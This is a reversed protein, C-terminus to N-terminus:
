YWMQMSLGHDDLEPKNPVLCACNNKAREAVSLGILADFLDDIKAARGLRSIWLLLVDVDPVSANLIKQRQAIGATKHKSELVTGAARWWALEPHYELVRRQLEPTMLEDVERIKELIGWVPLGAGKNREVQHLKQFDTPCGAKLCERPPALFVCSNRKAGLLSQATKDCGRVEAGSPLGIPIDICLHSCDKTIKLVTEFDRCILAIPTQKCPWSSSMVVLWGGRCGDVGALM